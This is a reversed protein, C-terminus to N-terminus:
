LTWDEIMLGEIRSFENVNHTVLTMNNALAIAAILLDNGGIPNGEKELDSRIKGYIKACKKDFPIVDFKEILKNYKGMTNDYSICKCSGYELEALTISPIKILISPIKLFHNKINPFKGRIIYSIINTDLLYNM